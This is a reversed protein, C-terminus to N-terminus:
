APQEVIGSIDAERCMLHMVNGWIFSQFSYGVIRDGQRVSGLEVIDGVKVSTPQFVKSRWSKTRKSKDPSDYCLPYHGRGVAKVIGRVPKIDEVVALIKSHEINLPEIIVHDHLPRIEADAPIYTTSAYTLEGGRGNAQLNVSM